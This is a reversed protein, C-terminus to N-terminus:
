MGVLYLYIEKPLNDAIKLFDFGAEKHQKVVELTQQLSNLNQARLYPGTSFYQPGTLEGSQLRNKIQNFQEGDAAAMNRVTTIGNAIFLKFDSQIDNSRFHYHMESLGPILYKNTGDITRSFTNHTALSAPEIKVIKGDAVLVRQNELIEQSVM